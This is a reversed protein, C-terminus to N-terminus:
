LLVLVLGFVLVSSLLLVLLVFVSVLVAVAVAVMGGPLGSKEGHVTSMCHWSPCTQLMINLISPVLHRSTKDDWTKQTLQWAESSCGNSVLAEIMCGLTVATPTVGHGIMSTWLKRVHKVDRAHGYAKIM